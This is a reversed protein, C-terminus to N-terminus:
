VVFSCGLIGSHSKGFYFFNLKQFEEAKVNCGQVTSYQWGKSLLFVGVEGCNYLGLVTVSTVFLSGKLLSPYLPFLKNRTVVGTAIM